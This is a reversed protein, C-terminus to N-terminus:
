RAGLPSTAPHFGTRPRLVPEPAPVEVTAPSYELALVRLAMSLALFHWLIETYQFPLFSGGVIVVVFAAQIAVAYHYFEVPLEGRKARRTIPFMAFVALLMMLVFLVLGIYGTEALVGFWVSHVSRSKGFHGYSFDYSNYASNFANYGVGLLPHENAM